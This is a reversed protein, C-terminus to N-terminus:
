LLAEDDNPDPWYGTKVMADAALQTWVFGDETKSLYGVGVLAELAGELRGGKGFPKNPDTSLGWYEAGYEGILYLFNEILEHLSPGSKWNTMAVRHAEAPACAFASYAPVSPEGDRASKFIKLRWLSQATWEFASSFQHFYIPGAADPYETQWRDQWSDEEASAYAHKTLAEAIQGYAWLEAQNM